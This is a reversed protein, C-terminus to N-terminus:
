FEIHKVNKKNSYRYLIIKRGITAVCEASLKAALEDGLERASFAANKLVTLKILERAELADNVSSLFAETFEESEEGVSAKGLQFVPELTSAIARLNSRQKSNLM